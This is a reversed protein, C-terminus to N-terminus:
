RGSTKELSRLRRRGIEMMTRQIKDKNRLYVALNAPSVILSLDVDEDEDDDEDEYEGDDEDEDDAFLEPNQQKAHLFGAAGIMYRGLVFDRVSLGHRALFDAVGPKAEIEGIWQAVSQPQENANEDEDIGIGSGETVVVEGDLAATPYGPDAVAALYKVVFRDTLVLARMQAIEADRQEDTPHAAWAPPSVAAAIALLATLLLSSHNPRM